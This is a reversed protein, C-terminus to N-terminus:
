DFKVKILVQTKKGAGMGAANVTVPEDLNKPMTSTTTGDKMPISPCIQSISSATAYTTALQTTITNSLADKVALTYGDTPALTADPKVAIEMVIGSLAPTTTQTVNGSPDSQINLTYTFVGRVPHSLLPAGNQSASVSLTGAAAM